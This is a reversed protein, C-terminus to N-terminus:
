NATWKFPRERRKDVRQTSDIGAQTVNISLNDLVRNIWFISSNEYKTEILHKINVNLM